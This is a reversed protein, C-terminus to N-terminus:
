WNHIFDTFPLMKLIGTFPVMAYWNGNTVEYGSATLNNALSDFPCAVVVRPICYASEDAKAKTSM